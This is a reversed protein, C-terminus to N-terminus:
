QEEEVMETDPLSEEVEQVEEVMETDPLSEDNKKSNKKKSM